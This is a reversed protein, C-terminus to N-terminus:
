MGIDSKGLIIDKVKMEQKLAGDKFFVDILAQYSALDTADLENWARLYPQAVLHVQDAPIPTYKAITPRYKEFDANALKTAADLV